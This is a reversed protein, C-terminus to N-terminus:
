AAILASEVDVPTKYGISSHMRRHNDAIPHCVWPCSDAKGKM